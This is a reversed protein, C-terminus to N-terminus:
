YVHNSQRPIVVSIWAMPELCQGDEDALIMTSETKSTAFKKKILDSVVLQPICLVVKKRAILIVRITALAKSFLEKDKVWKEFASDSKKPAKIFDINKLRHYVAIADYTLDAPNDEDSDANPDVEREHDPLYTFPLIVMPDYEREVSFTQLQRLSM